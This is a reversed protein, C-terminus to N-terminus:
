GEVSWSMLQKGNVRKTDLRATFTLPMEEVGDENAGKFNFQFGGSNGYVCPLELSRKHGDDDEHVIQMAYPKLVCSSSGAHIATTAIPTCSGYTVTFPKGADSSVNVFTLGWGSPANDDAVVIFDTNETVSSGGSIAIGSITPAEVTRFSAGSTSHILELPYVVGKKLGTFKQANPTNAEAKTQTLTFIGGGMKQVGVPDLNILTFGGAIEMKSIKTDLTGANATEVSSETWNLTATVASNIAGVDFWEDSSASKVEVRAGDPFYINATKQTQNPM